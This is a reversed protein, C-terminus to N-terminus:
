FGSFAGDPNNITKFDENFEQGFFITDTQGMGKIQNTQDTIDQSAFVSVSEDSLADLAAAISDADDSEYTAIVKGDPDKIEGGDVTYGPLRLEVLLNTLRDDVNDEDRAMEAPDYEATATNVVAREYTQAPSEGQQKVTKTRGIGTENFSTRERFEADTENKLRPINFGQNLVDGVNDTIKVKNILETVFERMNKLQGGETKFSVTETTGDAFQVRVGKSTRDIYNIILSPDKTDKNLDKVFGLTSEIGANDDYYLKTLETYAKQSSERNVKDQTKFGRRSTSTTIEKNISADIQGKIHEKAAEKQKDTLDPVGRASKSTDIFIIGEKGKDNPDKSFTYPKGNPATLGEDTLISVVDWENVMFRATTEDRWQQYLKIEEADGYKGGQSRTKILYELDGEGGYQMKLSDIIGLRSKDDVIAKQLDFNDYQSNLAATMQNVTMFQNPDGDMKGDEWHGISVMGNNQNILAKTNQINYLGGIQDMEWGEYAQSLGNKQREMKLKYVEEYKKAMGYVKDTSSNLNAAILSYQRPQLLGAKLARNAALMTASGDAAFQAAFENAETYTGSPANALREQMERAAKDLEDKKAQRGAIEAQLTDTFVSAVASWDIQSDVQRDV